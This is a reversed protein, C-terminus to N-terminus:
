IFRVLFPSFSDGLLEYELEVFQWTPVEQNKIEVDIVNSFISM